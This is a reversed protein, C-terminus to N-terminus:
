LTGLDLAEGENIKYSDGLDQYSSRSSFYRLTYTGSPLYHVKFSGDSKVRVGAFAEDCIQKIPNFENPRSGQKPAQAEILNEKDEFSQYGAKQIVRKPRTRFARLKPQRNNLALLLKDDTSQDQRNVLGTTTQNNISNEQYVCLLGSEAGDIQGSLISSKQKRIAQLFPTVIYRDNILRISRRLDFHLILDQSDNISIDQKLFIRNSRSLFLLNEEVGDNTVIYGPEEANLSLLIGQYKAKPVNQKPVINETLGDQLSLIDISENISDSLKLNFLKGEAVLSVADINLYINSLNDIPADAIEISFNALEQDEDDDHPNGIEVGCDISVFLTLCFFFRRAIITISSKIM